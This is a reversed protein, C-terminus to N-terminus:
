NSTPSSQEQALRAILWRRNLVGSQKHRSDDIFWRM